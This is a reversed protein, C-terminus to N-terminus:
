TIGNIDCVLTQSKERKSESNGYGTGGNGDGGRRVNRKCYKRYCTYFAVILTLLGIVTGIITATM